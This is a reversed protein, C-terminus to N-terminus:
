MRSSRGYMYQSRNRSWALSAPSSSQVAIPPVQPMAVERSCSQDADPAGAALGTAATSPSSRATVASIARSPPL